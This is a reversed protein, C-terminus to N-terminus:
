DPAAARVSAGRPGVRLPLDIRPWGRDPDRLYLYHAYHSTVRRVYGRTQDFPIEEVFLDLDIEGSRALWEEVRHGGANFAAFCLPVGHADVLARVYSAGLRTNWEPEFLMERRFPVGAGRAVREATSPLLQLLGIADAYSVADPDYASEQRMIGWLMEPELRQARAAAVVQGEFARPYAASWAWAEAGLAPRALEPARITLRYARAADGISLYEQVLARLESTRRLEPEAERMALRADRDLGLSLLTVVHPPLEVRSPSWTDEGRSAEAFPPGPDEGLATLRQRALLAYWHLPSVHLAARYAAIARARQGSEDLARARWYTGRGRVLPDGDERAYAEFLEAADDRDGRRFAELAVHWRGERALSPVRAARPSALFRTMARAGTRRGLRMELWAALYEAEAGRAHDRARRALARYARIAGDDDGSRSLARAAHFADEIATEGGLAASEALVTAAEPYADRSRFLAMGRLHLWRSRMARDRPRGVRDLEEVAREHLLAEDLHEARELREAATLDLAGALSAFAAEARAADPHEPRRVVLRRLTAIARDRAGARAQAEALALELAFSDVDRADREAERGLMEEATALDGRALACEARLARETADPREISGLLTEADACRGRRALLRARRADADRALPEPLPAVIPGAPAEPRDLSRVRAYAELAGDLDGLREALRGELYRATAADRPGAPLARIAALAGELDHERVRAAIPALEAPQPVVQALAARPGSLALAAIVSAVLARSRM